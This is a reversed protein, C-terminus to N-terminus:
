PLSILTPFSFGLQSLEEALLQRPPPDPLQGIAILASSCENFFKPLDQDTGIVSYGFINSGVESPLGVLGYIRWDSVTEVLEILSRAHGGCGILLLPKM